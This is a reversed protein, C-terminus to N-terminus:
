PMERPTTLFPHSSPTRHIGARRCGSPLAPSAAFCRAENISAADRPLSCTRLMEGHIGENKGHQSSLSPSFTGDFSGPQQEKRKNPEEEFGAVAKGVM